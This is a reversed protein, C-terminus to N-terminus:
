MAGFFVGNMLGFFEMKMTTAMLVYVELQFILFSFGISFLFILISSLLVKSIDPKIKIQPILLWYLFHTPLFITFLIKKMVGEPWRFKGNNKNASIFEMDDEEDGSEHRKFSKFGPEGDDSFNRSRSDFNSNSFSSKSLKSMEEDEDEVKSRSETKVKSAESEEIEKLEKLQSEKEKKINERIKKQRENIPQLPLKNSPATKDMGGARGRIGGLNFGPM